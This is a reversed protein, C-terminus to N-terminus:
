GALGYGGAGPAAIGGSRGGGNVGTGMGQSNGESIVIGITFAMAM